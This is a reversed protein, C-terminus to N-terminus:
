LLRFQCDAISDCCVNLNGDFNWDFKLFEVVRGKLVGNIEMPIRGSCVLDNGLCELKFARGWEGRTENIERDDWLIEIM